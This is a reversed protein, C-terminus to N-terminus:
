AISAVYTTKAPALSKFYRDLRLFRVYGARFHSNTLGYLFVNATSNCHALFIFVVFCIDPIDHVFQILTALLFPLWCVTFGIFLVFFTGALKM